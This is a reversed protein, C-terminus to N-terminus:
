PHEQSSLKVERFKEEDIRHKSCIQSSAKEASLSLKCRLDVYDEVAKSINDGIGSPKDVFTEYHATTIDIIEQITGGARLLRQCDTTSVEVFLIRMADYHDLPINRLRFYDELRRPNLATCEEYLEKAQDNTLFVTPDDTM